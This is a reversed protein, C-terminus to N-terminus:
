IKSRIHQSLKRFPNYIAATSRSLKFFSGFNPDEINYFSVFFLHHYIGADPTATPSRGSDERSFFRKITTAVSNVRPMSGAISQISNTSGMRHRSPRRGAFFHIGSIADDAQFRNLYQKTSINSICMQKLPFFGM